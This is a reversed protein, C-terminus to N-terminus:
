SLQLTHRSLFDNKEALPLAVEDYEELLFIAADTITNALILGINRRGQM